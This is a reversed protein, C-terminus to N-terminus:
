VQGLCLETQIFFVDFVINYDMCKASLLFGLCARMYFELAKEGKREHATFWDFFTYWLGGCYFGVCVIFHLLGSHTGTFIASFIGAEMEQAWQGVSYQVDTICM